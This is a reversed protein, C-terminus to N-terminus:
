EPVRRLVASGAGRSTTWRWSISASKPDNGAKLAYVLEGRGAAPYRWTLTEGDSISALIFRKWGVDKPTIWMHLIQASDQGIDEVVV